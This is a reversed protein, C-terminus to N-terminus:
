GVFVTEGSIAEKQRFDNGLKEKEIRDQGASVAHKYSAKLGQDKILARAWRSAM